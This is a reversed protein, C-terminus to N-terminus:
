VTRLLVAYFAAGRAAPCGVTCMELEFLIFQAACMLLVLGICALYDHKDNCQLLVIGVALLAFGLCFRTNSHVCLSFIAICSLSM